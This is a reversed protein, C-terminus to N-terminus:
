STLWNRAELATKFVKAELGTVKNIANVIKRKIDTLGIVAVKSCSNKIKRSAEAFKLQSATSVETKEVDILLLIDSKGTKKIHHVCYDIFSLLKEGTLGHYNNVLIKNGRHTVWRVRHNTDM